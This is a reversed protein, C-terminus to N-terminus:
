FGDNENNDEKMKGAKTRMTAKGFFLTQELPTLNKRM